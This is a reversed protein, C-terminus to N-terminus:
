YTVWLMKIWSQKLYLWFRVNGIGVLTLPGLDHRKIRINIILLIIGQPPCWFNVKLHFTSGFMRRKLTLTALFLCPFEAMHNFLHSNAVKLGRVHGMQLELCFIYWGDAVIGCKALVHDHDVM